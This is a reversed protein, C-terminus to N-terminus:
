SRPRLSSSIFIMSVISSGICLCELTTRSRHWYTSIFRPDLVSIRQEFIGVSVVTKKSNSTVRTEDHWWAIALKCLEDSMRDARLNRAGPAYLGPVYSGEATGDGEATVAELVKVNRRAVAAALGRRSQLGLLECVARMQRDAPDPACINMLTQHLRRDVETHVGKHEKIAARLRRFVGSAAAQLRPDTKWATEETWGPFHRRLERVTPNNDFLELIALARDQPNRGEVLHGSLAHLMDTVAAQTSRTGFMLPQAKAKLNDGSTNNVRQMDRAVGKMDRAVRQVQVRQKKCRSTAASRRTHLEEQLEKCPFGFFINGHVRKRRKEYAGLKKNLNRVAELTTNGTVSWRTGRKALTFIDPRVTLVYELQGGNGLRTSCEVTVTEDVVGLRLKRHTKNSQHLLTELLQLLDAKCTLAKVMEDTCRDDKVLELSHVKVGGGVNTLRKYKYKREARYGVPIIDVRDERKRSQRKCLEEDPVTMKINVTIAGGAETPDGVALVTFRV